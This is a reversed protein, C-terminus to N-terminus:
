DNKIEELAALHIEEIFKDKDTVTFDFFTTLDRGKFWGTVNYSNTGMSYGRGWMSELTIGLGQWSHVLRNRYNDIHELGDPPAHGGEDFRLQALDLPSMRWVIEAVELCQQETM